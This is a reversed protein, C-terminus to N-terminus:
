PCAPHATFPSDIFIENGRTVVIVQHAGKAPHTQTHIRLGASLGDYRAQAIAIINDAGLTTLYHSWYADAAVGAALYADYLDQWDGEEQTPTGHAVDYFKQKVGQAAVYPPTGPHLFVRDLETKIKDGECLM